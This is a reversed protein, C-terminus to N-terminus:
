FFGKFVQPHQMARGVLSKALEHLDPAFHLSPLSHPLDTGVRFDGHCATDEGVCHQFGSAADPQCKEQHSKLAAVLSAEHMEDAKRAVRLEARATKLVDLSFGVPGVMALTSTSSEVIEGQELRREVAVDMANRHLAREAQRAASMRAEGNQVRVRNADRLEKAQEDLQALQEASLGRFEAAAESSFMNGDFQRVFARYRGGGGPAQTGDKRSRATCPTPEESQQLGADGGGSGRVLTPDGAAVVVSQHEMM